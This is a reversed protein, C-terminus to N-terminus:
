KGREKLLAEVDGREVLKVRADLPDQKYPLVGTRVLQTMKNPSIRLVRRAETLTMKSSVPPPGAAHEAAGISGAGGEQSQTELMPSNKACYLFGTLGKEYKRM